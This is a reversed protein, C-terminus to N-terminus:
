DFENWRIDHLFASSFSLSLHVRCRFLLFVSPPECDNNHQDVGHHNAIGNSPDVVLPKWLIGKTNLCRISIKMFLKTTRFIFTPNHTKRLCTYTRIFNMRVFSFLDDFYICFCNSDFTSKCRQSVWVGVATRNMKQMTQNRRQKELADFTDSFAYFFRQVFIWSRLVSGSGIFIVLYLFHRTM